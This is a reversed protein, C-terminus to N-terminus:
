YRAKIYGIAAIINDVPNLINGHGKMKYANFTAPITQMLGQSAMGRKANIDWNNVANPNGNSEKMAITALANSWSAPVGTLGIAQQVWGNVAKSGGKGNFSGGGL